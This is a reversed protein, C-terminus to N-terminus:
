KKRLTLIGVVAGVFAGAPLGYVIGLYAAVRVHGSMMTERPRDIECFTWLGGCGLAAGLAVFSLFLLAKRVM